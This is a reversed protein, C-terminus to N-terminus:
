EPPIIREVEVELVVSTEPPDTVIKRLHDGWNSMDEGRYRTFIRKSINKIIEKDEIISASGLLIVRWGPIGKESEEISIAVKPNGRINRVKKGSTSIYIKGGEYLYWVPAVHPQDDMSTALSAIMPKEILRVVDEPIDKM